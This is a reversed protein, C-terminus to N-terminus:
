SQGAETKRVYIGLASPFPISFKLVSMERKSPVVLM